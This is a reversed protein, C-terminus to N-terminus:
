ASLDLVGLKVLYESVDLGTVFYVVIIQIYPSQDFENSFSIEDDLEEIRKFQWQEDHSASWIFGIEM